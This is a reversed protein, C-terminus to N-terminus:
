PRKQGAQPSGAHPGHIAAGTRPGETPYPSNFMAHSKERIANRTMRPIEVAPINAASTGMPLPMLCIWCPAVDSGPNSEGLEHDNIGHLTTPALPLTFAVPPFGPAYPSIRSSPRAPDMTPPGQFWD